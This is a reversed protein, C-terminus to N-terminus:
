ITSRRVSTILFRRLCSRRAAGIYSTRHQIYLVCSPGLCGCSPQENVIYSKNIIHANRLNKRIILTYQSGKLDMLM